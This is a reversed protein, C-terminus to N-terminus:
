RESLSISLRVTVSVVLVSQEVSGSFHYYSYLKYVLQAVRETEENSYWVCCGIMLKMNNPRM